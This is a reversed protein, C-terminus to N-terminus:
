WRSFPKGYTEAFIYDGVAWGVTGKKEEELKVETRPVREMENGMEDYGIFYLTQSKITKLKMNYFYREIARDIARKDYYAFISDAEIIYYPPDYRIVRISTKDVFVDTIESRNILAYRDPNESFPNANVISFTSTWLILFLMFKKM